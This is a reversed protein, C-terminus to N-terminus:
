QARCRFANNNDTIHFAFIVVTFSLTDFVRQFCTSLGGLKVQTQVPPPPQPAPMQTLTAGLVQIKVGGKGLTMGGVSSIVGPKPQVQVCIVFMNLPSVSICRMALHHMQEIIIYM